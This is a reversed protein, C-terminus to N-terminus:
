LGFASAFDACDVGRDKRFQFTYFKGNKGDAVWMKERDLTYTGEDLSMGKAAFAKLHKALLREPIGVTDMVEEPTLDGELENVTIRAFRVNRRIKGDEDRIPRDRKDTLIPHTVDIRM